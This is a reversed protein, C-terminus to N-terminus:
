AWVGNQDGAITREEEIVTRLLAIEEQIYQADSPLNRIYSLM